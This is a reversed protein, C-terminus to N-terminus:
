ISHAFSSSWITGGRPAFKWGIDSVIQAVEFFLRTSSGKRKGVQVIRCSFMSFFRVSNMGHEHALESLLPAVKFRVKHKKPPTPPNENTPSVSRKAKFFEENIDNGAAYRMDLEDKPEAKIAVVGALKVEEEADAAALDLMSQSGSARAKEEKAPRDFLLSVTQDVGIRM